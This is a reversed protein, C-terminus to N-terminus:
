AKRSMTLDEDEEVEEAEVLLITKVREFAPGIPDIVSVHIEHANM